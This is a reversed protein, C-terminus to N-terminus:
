KAGETAEQARKIAAPSVASFKKIMAETEEGSMPEIDIKSKEADALFDKDKMTAMLADRLAKVRGEPVGPPAAYIRGLAQTGFVLDFVKKDDDLKAYDTIQAVGKLEAQPSGSLQLIPKFEGSEYVDGWFSKVTSFPLGCTGQVEGRSMALKIEPTGKYGYVVNMKAGTLNRVGEALRGLPGTASTAGFVVVKDSKLLDEFKTIGSARSVGCIGISQEMNGLWNLLTPDFKAKTNGYLPEFVVTYVVTLIATGDTPAINALWNTAIIGSAGNMNKVVVNPNGPIHKSLHRQLVRAYVDFGTGPPHGVVLDLQKGKYFDVVSDALAPQAMLCIGLTAGVLGAGIHARMNHERLNMAISAACVAGNL